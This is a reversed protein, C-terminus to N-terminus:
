DIWFETTRQLTSRGASDSGQIELRYKGPVLNLKSLPLKVAIPIVSKGPLVWSDAIEAKRIFDMGTQESRVQMTYSIHLAEESPIPPPEYFEFYAMLSDSNRFVMNVAPTFEENGAILPVFDKALTKKDNERVRKCLAISSIAFQGSDYNDVTLPLDAIGFDPGQKYGIRLKYEGPPLDMQANYRTFTLIDAEKQDIQLQYASEPSPKYNPNPQTGESRRAVLRGGNGYAEILIDFQAPEGRWNRPKVQAYPFEIALDVRGTGPSGYFTNASVLPHISGQIGAALEKELEGNEKTGLLPDFAFHEVNCYENRYILKSDHPGTIRIIHCSGAPSAAPTYSIQFYHGVRLHAVREFYDANQDSTSWIANPVESWEVHAGLNDNIVTSLFPTREIKEIKQETGDEFLHLADPSVFGLDDPTVQQSSTLSDRAVHDIVEGDWSCKVLNKDRRPACEILGTWLAPVLVQRSEVRIDPLATQSACFGVGCFVACGLLAAARLFSQPRM